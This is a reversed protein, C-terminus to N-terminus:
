HLPHHMYSQKIVKYGEVTPKIESDDETITINGYFKGINACLRLATVRFYLRGIGDIEQSQTQAKM